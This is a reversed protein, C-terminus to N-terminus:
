GQPEAMASSRRRSARQHDYCYLQGQFREPHTLCYDRVKDSLVSNCTACRAEVTPAVSPEVTPIVAVEPEAVPALVPEVTPSPSKQVSLLAEVLRDRDWLIVGNVRALEEAQKNYTSNTVVMAAACDYYGKAAVAEQIAKVGVKSKYRKAQIVTRVGDKRTILDAGYDGIYRTREVRYGLRTFLNELYKEFTLGDMRDIEAIGSASLRRQEYRRIAFEIGYKLGLVVWVPWWSLLLRPLMGLMQLGAKWFIENWDIM